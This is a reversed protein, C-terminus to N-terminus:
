ILMLVIRCEIFVIYFGIGKGFMNRDFSERKEGLNDRYFVCLLTYLSVLMYFYCYFLEYVIIDDFFCLGWSVREIRIMMEVM